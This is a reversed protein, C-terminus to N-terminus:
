HGCVAATGLDEGCPATAGPLWGPKHGGLRVGGFLGEDREPIARPWGIRLPAQLRPGRGPLQRRRYDQCAGGEAVLVWRGDSGQLEAPCWARVAGAHPPQVVPRHQPRHHRVPAAVCDTRPYPPVKQLHTIKKAVCDHACRLTPLDWHRERQIIIHEHPQYLFQKVSTYYTPVRTIRAWRPLARQQHLLARRRLRQLEPVPGVM